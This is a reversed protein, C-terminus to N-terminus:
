TEPLDKKRKKIIVCAIVAAILAVAAVIGACIIYGEPNIKDLPTTKVDGCKECVANELGTESFTPKKVTEPEGYSHGLAPLARTELSDCNSCSRKELGDETCTPKTDVSWKQYNHGKPEINRAELGQCLACTRKEIGVDDCSAAVEVSWPGYVHGLVPVTRSEMAYCVTCSREEAGTSVCSPAKTQSWQAYTHGTAKIKETAVAACVSCTLNKEGAETCTPSQTIVESKFDHDKGGYCSSYKWSAGALKENQMGVTIKSRESATGSYFVSQIANCDYFASNEIKIVSKPIYISKLAGCWSFASDGIFLLGEPLTVQQLQDMSIFAGDSITKTGERVTCSTMAENKADILHNGLYFCGDYVKSSDNYPVTKFFANFGIKTIGDHLTIDLLNWAAEFAGMSIEKVDSPVTYTRDSKNAPYRILVSRDKSFLVGGVSTFTSNSPDVFINNLSYCEQFIEIGIHTVTQPITIDILASCNSFAYDGITTIGNAMTVTHLATCNSFAGYEIVRLSSPLTVKYLAPCDSFAGVSISTVGESITVETISKGWPANGYGANLAGNGNITLVTGDLSWQCSGAQGSTAADASFSAGIMLIVTMCVLLFVCFTKKM